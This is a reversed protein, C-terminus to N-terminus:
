EIYELVYDLFFQLYSNGEKILGFSYIIYEISEYISAGRIKNINIDFDKINIYEKIIEFDKDVAEILFDEQELDIFNLECLSKCLDM